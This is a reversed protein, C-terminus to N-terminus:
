ANNLTYFGKLDIFIKMESKKFPKLTFNEIQFLKDSRYLQAVFDVFQSLTGSLRIKISIEHFDHSATKSGSVMPRISEPELGAKTVQEQLLIQMASSIEEESNGKFLYKELNASKQKLRAVRKKLSPLQEVTDRYQTLQSQKAEAEALQDTYFGWGLRAINFLLLLSGAGLLLIKRDLGKIYNILKNM